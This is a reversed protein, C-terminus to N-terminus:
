TVVCHCDIEVQGPRQVRILLKGEYNTLIETVNISLNWPHLYLNGPLIASEEVWEVIEVRNVVHNHEFEGVGWQQDLAIVCHGNVPYRSRDTLQISEVHYVSPGVIKGVGNDVVIGIHYERFKPHKLGTRYGQSRVVVGLPKLLIEGEGDGVDIVIHIGIHDPDDVEGGVVRRFEELLIGVADDVPGFNVALDVGGSGVLKYNGVGGISDSSSCGVVYCYHSQWCGPIVVGIIHVRLPEYKHTYKERRSGGTIGLPGQKQGVLGDLLCYRPDNFNLVHNPHWSSAEVGEGWEIGLELHGARNTDGRTRM